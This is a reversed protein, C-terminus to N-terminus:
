GPFLHLYPEAEALARAYSSRRRCRGLYEALIPFDKALPMMRDIFFLPPAAACDALSFDGGAAWEKGQMDRSAMELATHLRARANEVGTPDHAGAPRLKDGVIKQMPEHVHLDYFRDIARIELAAQPDSPILRLPGPFHLGLYEIIVTSEPITRNRAADRLVPFRAIPWIRAFEERSAPDGLNVERPTFATSNEYLAILVKHCFSSLPHLYLTLSM